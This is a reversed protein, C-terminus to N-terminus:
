RTYTLLVSLYFLANNSEPLTSLVIDLLSTHYRGNLREKNLGYYGWGSDM